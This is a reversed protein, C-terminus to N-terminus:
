SNAISRKVYTIDLIPQSTLRRKACCAAFVNIKVQVLNLCLLIYFTYFGYEHRFITRRSSRTSVKCYKYNSVKDMNTFCTPFKDMNYEAQRIM